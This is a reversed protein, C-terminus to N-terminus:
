ELSVLPTRSSSRRRTSHIFTTHTQSPTHLSKIYHPFTPEQSLYPRSCQYDVEALRHCGEKWPQPPRSGTWTRGFRPNPRGRRGGKSVSKQLSVPIHARKEPLNTGPNSVDTKNQCHPGRQLHSAPNSKRHVQAADQTRKQKIGPIPAQLGLIM